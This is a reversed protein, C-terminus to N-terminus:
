RQPCRSNQRFSAKGRLLRGEASAEMTSEPSLESGTGESCYNLVVRVAHAFGLCINDVPQSASSAMSNVVPGCPTRLHVEM